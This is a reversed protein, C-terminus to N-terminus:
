HGSLGVQGDWGLYLQPVLCSAGCLGETVLYGRGTWGMGFVVTTGVRRM